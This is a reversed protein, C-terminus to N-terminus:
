VVACRFNATDITQKSAVTITKRIYVEVTCAETYQWYAEVSEIKLEVLFLFLVCVVDTYEDGSVM